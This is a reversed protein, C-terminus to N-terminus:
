LGTTKVVWGCHWVCVYVCVCVCVCVFPVDTLNFTSNIFTEINLTAVCVYSGFDSPEIGDFTLVCVYVYM